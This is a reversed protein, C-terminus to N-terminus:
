RTRPTATALKDMTVLYRGEDENLPAFTFDEFYKSMIVKVEFYYVKGAEANFALLGVQRDRSQLSSQWNACLHHVGPSVDLAFYSDGKDAGIWQGDLGIRATVDLGYKVEVIVIRAKGEAPSPPVPQGAQTSVDYTVKDNGCASPLSAAGCQAAALSAVVLFWGGHIKM